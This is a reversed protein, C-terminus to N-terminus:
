VKGLPLVAMFRVLEETHIKKELRRNEKYRFIIRIEKL